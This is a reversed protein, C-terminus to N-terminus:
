YGLYRDVVVGDEIVLTLPTRPPPNFIAPNLARPEKYITKPPHSPNSQDPKNERYSGYYPFLYYGRRWHSPVPKKVVKKEFPPLYAAIRPDAVGHKAFPSLFPGAVLAPPASLSIALCVLLSFIFFRM